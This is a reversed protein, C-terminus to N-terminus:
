PPPLPRDVVVAAPERAPPRQAQQGVLNGMIMRGVMLVKTQWFYRDLLDSLTSHRRPAAADSLEGIRGITDIAQRLAAEEGASASASVQRHARMSQIALDSVGATAAAVTSTATAKPEPSDTSPLTM